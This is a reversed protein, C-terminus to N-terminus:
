GIMLVVRPVQFFVAWIGLAVGFSSCGKSSPLLADNGTWTGWINQTAALTSFLGQEIATTKVPPIDVVVWPANPSTQLCKRNNGSADRLYLGPISSFM